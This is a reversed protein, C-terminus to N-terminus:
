NDQCSGSFFFKCTDTACFVMKFTTTLTNELCWKLRNYQKSGSKFNPSKLDIMVIHKDHKVDMKTRKIGEMGFTEYTNKVLSLYLKGDPNLVVVDDSNLNTEISHMMM